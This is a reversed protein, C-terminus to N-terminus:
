GEGEENELMRDILEEKHAFISDIFSHGVLWILVATIVVGFLTSADM